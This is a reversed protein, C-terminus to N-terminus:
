SCPSPLAASPRSPVESPDVTASVTPPQAGTPVVWLEVTLEERFGGDVTSIRSADIGRENVLYNKARDCRAQAEGARGVRGGYCIITGQAGPENQLAIAYNDLRAKEDNFRINGYEDIERM